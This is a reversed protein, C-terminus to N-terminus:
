ELVKDHGFSLWAHVVRGIVNAERPVKYRSVPQHSAPHPLLILDNGNLQCWCCSYGSEHWVLYVPRERLTRWPFVEVVNQEKDIEVLSGPPLLDGMSDDQLGILAYRFQLPDLRKRLSAPMPGWQDPNAELLSTDKLNLQNDFHLQFRFGHERLDLPELDTKETEGGYDGAERPDVGFVLLLQDYPLKLCVALSFIKYISPLSGNEIGALTAHAIYYDPNKKDQAISRSIHEIDKAKVAREERLRKILNAPDM